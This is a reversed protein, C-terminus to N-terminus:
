YPTFIDSPETILNFTAAARDARRVVANWSMLIESVRIQADDTSPVASRADAIRHGLRRDSGGRTM